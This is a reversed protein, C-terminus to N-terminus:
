KLEAIKKRGLSTVVLPTMARVSRVRCRAIYNTLPKWPFVILWDYGLKYIAYRPILSM